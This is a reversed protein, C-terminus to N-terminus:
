LPEGDIYESAQSFGAFINEEGGAIQLWGLRGWGKVFSRVPEATGDAKAKNLPIGARWDDASYAYKLAAVTGTLFGSLMVFHDNFLWMRSLNGGAITQQHMWTDGGDASAYVAINGAAAGAAVWTHDAERYAVGGWELTSSPATIDSWTAGNDDSAAFVELDGSNPVAIVRPNVGGPGKGVAIQAPINPGALWGAGGNIASSFAEGDSSWAFTGASSGAIFNTGDHVIARWAGSTVGGTCAAWSIPWATNRVENDGVLVVRTGDSAMERWATESGGISATNNVTDWHVGDYSWFSGAGVAAVMWIRPTSTNNLHAHHIVASATGVGSDQGTDVSPLVAQFPAIMAGHFYRRMWVSRNNIGKMGVDDAAAGGGISEITRPEGPNAITISDPYVPPDAEGLTSPM